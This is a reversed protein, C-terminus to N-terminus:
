WRRYLYTDPLGLRRCSQIAPSSRLILRDSALALARVFLREAPRLTWRSGLGLRERVWVPLLEVAAKLLVRQVPRAWAPLIPVQEMIELFEFVIPSAVLRTRMTELLVKLEDQSAPAGLAGYLCAIPQAEAFLVRREDATLRRVYAHYAETFGFGATAQVWNLLVPDNAHYPEGESTWGTVREHRRVVGAIVAEAKSRPGYVTVMAALGTRRLRTLPDTRFNSHQWIGDRVRPEAFELLVATVGGLFVVVPNKFIRWSMSGPPILAPESEPKSFDIIQQPQLFSQALEDIQRQLPRPLIIAGLNHLM